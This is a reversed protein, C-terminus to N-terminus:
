DKVTSKNPASTSNPDGHGGRAAIELSRFFENVCIFRGQNENCNKQKAQLSEQDFTPADRSRIIWPAGPRREALKIAPAERGHSLTAAM